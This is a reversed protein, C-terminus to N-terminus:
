RVAAKATKKKVDRKAKAEAQLRQVEAQQQLSLVATVEADRQETVAELQAKLNEIQAFYRRQITYIQQRQREDVVEGYYSPLRGRFQKPQQIQAMEEAPRGGAQRQAPPQGQGYTAGLVLVVAVILSAAVRGTPVPSLRCSKM